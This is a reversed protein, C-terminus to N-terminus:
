VRTGRRLLLLGLLGTVLLVLSGPEPVAHGPFPPPGPFCGGTAGGGPFESCLSLVAVGVPNVGAYLNQVDSGDLRARRLLGSTFGAETWYLYDNALDIALNAPFSLADSGLLVQRNSGDLDAREITESLSNTFYMSNGDTDLVIGIPQSLGTIVDLMGSGDLGARRIRQGGSTETWYMVDNMADIAINEPNPLGSLVVTQDTGDLNASRINNDLTDTWYLRGGDLDLTLGSWSGSWASEVITTVNTGDLNARAIRREGFSEYNDGALQTWYIHGNLPDLAITDVTGVGTVIAEMESGDDSGRYITQNTQESWYIIAANAASHACWLALLATAKAVLSTRQIEMRSM